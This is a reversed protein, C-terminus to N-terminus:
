VLGVVTGVCKTRMVQIPIPMHVNIIHKWKEPRKMTNMLQIMVHLECIM